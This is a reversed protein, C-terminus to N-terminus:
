TRESSPNLPASPKTAILSAIKLISPTAAAGVSNAAPKSSIALAPISTLSLRTSKASTALNADKDPISIPLAISSKIPCDRAKVSTLILSAAFMIAFTASPVETEISCIVSARLCVVSSPVTKPILNLSKAVARPTIASRPIRPDAAPVDRLVESKCRTAGVLAAVSTIFFYRTLKEAISSDVPFTLSRCVTIFSRDTAVLCRVGPSSVTTKDLNDSLREILAIPAKSSATRSSSFTNSSPVSAIFCCLM